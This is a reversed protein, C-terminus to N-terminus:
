RVPMANDGIQLLNTMKHTTSPSYLPSSSCTTTDAGAPSRQAAEGALRRHSRRGGVEVSKARNCFSYSGVDDM